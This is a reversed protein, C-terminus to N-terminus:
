SQSGDIGRAKLAQRLTELVQNLRRYVHFPTPLSMLGAIRSASLGDRFRLTLLIQDVPSLAAVQRALENSLEAAHLAAEPDDRGAVAGSEASLRDPQIEDAVLDALKRRRARAEQAAAGAPRNRGYRSRHEDHCLRNVVVVLWTTFRSRGDGAWTRLRRFDDAQLRELVLAYRDMVVDHSGGHRRITHLILRSHNAVFAEWAAERAASDSVDLLDRLTPPIGRDM